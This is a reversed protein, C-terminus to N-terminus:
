IWKYPGSGKINVSSKCPELEIDGRNGQVLWYFKCNEGYVKFSNDEM